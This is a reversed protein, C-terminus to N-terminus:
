KTEFVGLTGDLSSIQADIQQLELRLAEMKALEAEITQKRDLLQQRAQNLLGLAGDGTPASLVPEAARTPEAVAAAPEPPTPQKKVTKTRAQPKPELTELRNPNKIWKTYQKKHHLRIHAVIGQRAPSTKECFPCQFESTPM